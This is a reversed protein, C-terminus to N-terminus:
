TGPSGWGSTHFFWEPFFHVPLELVAKTELYSSPVMGVQVCSLPGLIHQGVEKRRLQDRMEVMGFKKLLDEVQPRVACGQIGVGLRRFCGVPCLGAPWQWRESGLGGDERVHRICSWEEGGARGRCSRTEKLSEM